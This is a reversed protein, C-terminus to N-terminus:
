GLALFAVGVAALGIGVAQSRRLHEKNFIVSLLVAATAFQSTAVSVPGAAGHRYALQLSAIALGASLGAAIAPARAPRNVAVLPASPQVFRVLALVTFALMRQVVIPSLGSAKSTRSMFTFAIGFAVGSAAGLFVGTRVNGFGGPEYTALAVGGLGLLMGFAGLPGPRIGRVADYAVPVVALLVSSTPAVIGIRAVSYGRYLLALGAMMAVGSYAAILSDRRNWSSHVFLLLIPTFLASVALATRTVTISPVSRAARAAGFDSAGLLLAAIVGLLIGM